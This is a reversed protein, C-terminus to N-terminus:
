AEDMWSSECWHPLEASALSNAGPVSETCSEEWGFCGAPCPATLPFCDVFHEELKMKQAAICCTLPMPAERRVSSREMRWEFVVDDLDEHECGRLVELFARYTLSELEEPCGLAYIEDLLYVLAQAAARRVVKPESSTVFDCVVQCRYRLSCCSKRTADDFICRASADRWPIGTVGLAGYVYPFFRSGNTFWSFM